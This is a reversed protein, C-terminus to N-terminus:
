EWFEMWRDAYMQKLRERYENTKIKAMWLDHGSGGKCVVGEKLGFNNDRVDQIFSENLNGEYVVRPIKLRGFLRVFDRPGVLGKKHVNVDFLTLEMQGKDDPRHQGAFSRPGEWEAYATVCNANSWREDRIVREIGEALTERFVRIADGYAESTEDFLQRRTGFKNWGSKRSWEFRLNSGDHKWFAICPGRKAKSAAPISWYEKMEQEQHAWLSDFGGGWRKFPSYAVTLAM